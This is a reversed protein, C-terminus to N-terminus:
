SEVSPLQLTSQACKEMLTVRLGVCWPALCLRGCSGLEGARLFSTSYPVLVWSNVCVMYGSDFWAGIVRARQRHAVPAAMNHPRGTVWRVRGVVLLVAPSSPGVRVRARRRNKLRRSGHLAVVNSVCTAATKVILVRPHFSDLCRQRPVFFVFVM